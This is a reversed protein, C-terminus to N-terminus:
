RAKKRGNKARPKTAGQKRAERELVIALEAEDVVWGRCADDGCSCPIAGDANWGYDITLQDGVQITRTVQLFLPTPAKGKLDDDYVIACNPSCCHNLFRLPPEIELSYPGGMDVCYSSWYEPDDIVTGTLRGVIQNRRMKKRAYVGREGKWHGVRVLEQLRSM